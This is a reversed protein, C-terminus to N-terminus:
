VQRSKPRIRCTKCIYMYVHVHVDGSSLRCQLLHAFDYLFIDWEVNHPILSSLFLPWFIQMIGFGLVLNLFLLLRKERLVSICLLNFSQCYGALVLAKNSLSTKPLFRIRPFPSKNGGFNDKREMCVSVLLIRHIYVGFVVTFHPVSSCCGNNPFLLLQLLFQIKLMGLDRELSSSSLCASLEEATEEEAASADCFTLLSSTESGLNHQARFRRRGVEPFKTTCATCM